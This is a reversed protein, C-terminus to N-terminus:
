RITLTMGSPPVWEVTLDDFSSSGGLYNTGIYAHVVIFRITDINNTIEIHMSNLLWLDNTPTNMNIGQGNMNNEISEVVNNSILLDVKLFASNGEQLYDAERGNRLYGSFNWIHNKRTSFSQYVGSFNNGGSFNQFLSLYNTGSHALLNNSKVSSNATGFATWGVAGNTKILGASDEFSSNILRNGAVINGCSLVFTTIAVGIVLRNKRM